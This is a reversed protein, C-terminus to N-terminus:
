RPLAVASADLVQVDGAQLTLQAVFRTELVTWLTYEGSRVELSTEAALPLLDSLLEFSEGRRLLVLEDPQGSLQPMAAITLRAGPRPAPAVLVQTQGAAVVVAALLQPERGRALIEVEYEGPLLRAFGVQDGRSFRASGAALRTGDLLDAIVAREADRSWVRVERESELGAPDGVLEVRLTGLHDEGDLEVQLTYPADGAFAGELVPLPPTGPALLPRVLVRLPGPPANPIVFAGEADTITGDVFPEGELRTEVEVRWSGLPREHGDFLRGRLELGRDLVADWSLRDGGAGEIRGDARGLDGGGARLVYAGATLRDLEWSGSPDTSAAYWTGDESRRAYVPVRALPVGAADFVRGGLAFAQPESADAETHDVLTATEQEIEFGDDIALQGVELTLRPEFFTMWGKADRSVMPGRIRPALFRASGPEAPEVTGESSGAQRWLERAADSMRDPLFSRQTGLARLAVRGSGSTVSIRRLLGDPDHALALDLRVTPTYAQFRLKCVGDVSTGGVLNLSGGAPAAYVAQWALPLDLEDVVTVELEYDHPPRPWAQPQQEGAAAGVARRAPTQASVGALARDGGVGLAATTTPASSGTSAAAAPDPRTAVLVAAAAVATAGGWAVLKGWTLAAGQAAATAGVGVPAAGPGRRGLLGGLALAFARPSGFDRELRERLRAHARHLRDYVVPPEVSLRRAIDRPPLVYPTTLQQGAVSGALQDM